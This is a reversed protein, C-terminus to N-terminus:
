FVDCCLYMCIIFQTTLLCYVFYLYSPNVRTLWRTWCIGFITIVRKCIIVNRPFHWRFRSRQVVAYNNESYTACGRRSPRSKRSFKNGCVTRGVICTHVKETKIESDLEVKTSNCKLDQSHFHLTISKYLSDDHLFALM